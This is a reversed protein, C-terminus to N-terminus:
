SKCDNYKCVKKNRGNKKEEKKLQKLTKRDVELSLKLIEEQLNYVPPLYTFKRKQNGFIQRLVIKSYKEFPLGYQYTKICGFGLCAEGIIVFGLLDEPLYDRGFMFTAVGLGLTVAGVLLQRVTLGFFFREKFATVEPPFDSKILGM